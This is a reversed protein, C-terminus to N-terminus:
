KRVVRLEKEYESIFAEPLADWSLMEKMVLMTNAVELRHIFYAWPLYFDHKTFEKQLAQFVIEPNNRDYNGSSASFRSTVTSRWLWDADLFARFIPHPVKSRTDHDLVAEEIERKMPHHPLHERVLRAAEEEHAKRLALMEQKAREADEKDSGHYRTALLNWRKDIEPIAIWGADHAIAALGVAETEEASLKMLAALAHTFHTVTDTHGFDGRQDQRTRLTDYFAREQRSLREVIPDGTGWRGARAYDIPTYLAFIGEETLQHEMEKASLVGYM